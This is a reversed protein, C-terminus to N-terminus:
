QRIIRKKYNIDGLPTLLATQINEIIGAVFSGEFCFYEYQKTGDPWEVYGGPKFGRAYCKKARHEAQLYRREPSEFQLENWTNFNSVHAIYRANGMQSYGKLRLLRIHKQGAPHTYEHESHIKM